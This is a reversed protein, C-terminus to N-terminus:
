VQSEMGAHLRESLGGGGAAAAAAATARSRSLVSRSGRKADADASPGPWLAPPPVACACACACCAGSVAPALRATHSGARGHLFSCSQRPALHNMRQAISLPLSATTQQPEQRSPHAESPHAVKCACRRCTKRRDSTMQGWCVQAQTMM